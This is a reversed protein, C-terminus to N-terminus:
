FVVTLKYKKIKIITQDLNMRPPHSQEVETVMNAWNLSLTFDVGNEVSEKLGNYSGLEPICFEKPIVTHLFWLSSM